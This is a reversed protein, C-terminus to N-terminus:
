LNERKLGMVPLMFELNTDAPLECSAASALDPSSSSSSSTRSALFAALIFIYPLSVRSLTSHCGALIRQMRNTLFEMNCENCMM